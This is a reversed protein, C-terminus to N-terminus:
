ASYLVATIVIGNFFSHIFIPRFLSGSKEYSYGLCMGLMFLAPWHGPQHLTAFLGSSIVVSLWPKAFFPRIMTQFLGRFFMEELIPAIVVVLVIILMRLPLQSHETILELGQHQQLEFDQGRFLKGLLTTLIIMAMVVPWVACLNVAGAFFDKVITKANLGFGKLRRAFSARALFIIVAITGTAIIFHVLNDVFASQWGPLDPLIIRAISIALLVGVQWIFFPIFPLYFPMNNRRPVSDVLAKRGLSTKLLWIGLLTLGPLFVIINTGTIASCFEKVIKIANM